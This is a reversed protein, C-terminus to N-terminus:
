IDLDLEYGETDIWVGVEEPINNIRRYEEAGHQLIDMDNEFYVHENAMVDLFDNININIM